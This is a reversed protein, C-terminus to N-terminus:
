YELVGFKQANKETKLNLLERKLRKEEYYLLIKMSDKGVKAIVLSESVAYSASGCVIRCEIYSSIVLQVSIGVQHVAYKM